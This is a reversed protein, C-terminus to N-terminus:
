QEEGGEPYIEVRTTVRWPRNSYALVEGSENVAEVDGCGEQTQTGVVASGETGWSETPEGRYGKLTLNFTV